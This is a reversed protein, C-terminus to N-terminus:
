QIVVRKNWMGKQTKIKLFYIGSALNSINLSNNITEVTIEKGSVDILSIHHIILETPLELHIFDKAPNPYISIKDLEQKETGLLDYNGVLNLKIKSDPFGLSSFLTPTDIECDPTLIYSSATEEEQAGPYFRVEEMGTFSYMVVIEQNTSVIVAQDFDGQILKTQEPNVETSNIEGSAIPEPMNDLTYAEPFDPADYIAFQFDHASNLGAIGFQVGTLSIEEGSLEYTSLDYVRFYYNDYTTNTTDDSCAIGHPTWEGSTQSLIIEQARNSFCSLSLFLLLIIKKLM